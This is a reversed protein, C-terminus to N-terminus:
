VGANDGKRSSWFEAEEPSRVWPVFGLKDYLAIAALNDSGTTLYVGVCGLERLV